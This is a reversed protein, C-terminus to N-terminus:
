LRPPRQPSPDQFFLTWEASWDNRFFNTTVTGHVIIKYSPRDEQSKDIVAMEGDVKFTNAKDGKTFEFTTFDCGYAYGLDNNYPYAMTKDYHNVVRDKSNEYIGQPIQQRMSVENIARLGFVSLIGAVLILLVVVTMKPSITRRVSRVPDLAPSPITETEVIEALPLEPPPPPRKNPTTDVATGCNNCFQADEPLEKGCYRCFM